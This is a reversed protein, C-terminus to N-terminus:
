ANLPEIEDIERQIEKAQRRRRWLGYGTWVALLAVMPLVRPLRDLGPSARGTLVAVFVLCALVLPGHWVWANRLHDRRRELETRYYELGPAAVADPRSLEPRWIRRRFWILSIVVWGIVAGFGIWQLRDHPEIRWAMVGAFLLAALISMLIESRTSASLEQTRRNVIQNLSVTMEEGPQSRWIAGADKARM